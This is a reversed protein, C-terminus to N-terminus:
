SGKTGQSRSAEDQHESRCFDNDPTAHQDEKEIGNPDSRNTKPRSQSAM